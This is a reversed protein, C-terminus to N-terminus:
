YAHEDDKGQMPAVTMIRKKLRQALASPTDGKRDLARFTRLRSWRPTQELPLCDALLALPLRKPRRMLTRYLSMVGPRRYSSWHCITRDPPAVPVGLHGLVRLTEPCDLQLNLANPADIGLGLAGDVPDEGVILREFITDFLDNERSTMNFVEVMRGAPTRLMEAAHARHSAGTLLLLRDVAGGPLHALCSLAGESSLSHAILHVSREPARRRLIRIVKALPEGLARAQRHAERLSARACWGLAIGLGEDARDTGFGLAKPWGTQTMGFIKAHPCHLRHGPAYKYGHLMIIVPGAGQAMEEIRDRAAEDGEHLILGRQSANIRLLPM